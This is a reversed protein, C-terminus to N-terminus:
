KTKPKWAWCTSAKIANINNGKVVNVVAKPRAANVIAKPKAANVVAKPRVTNVNKDKVTNVRQNFNSNKFTTNKHIPWKVTSHTSKSLNTMPRVSNMIIKPHATNVSVLDSKMLVAKPVMNMKLSPHTM